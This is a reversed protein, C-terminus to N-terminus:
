SRSAQQQQQQAATREYLKARNDVVAAASRLGAVFNQVREQRAQQLASL